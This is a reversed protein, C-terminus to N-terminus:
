SGTPLKDSIRKFLYSAEKQKELLSLFLEKNRRELAKDIQFSLIFHDLMLDIVPLVRDSNIAEELEATRVYDKIQGNVCILVFWGIGIIYKGQNSVTLVDGYYLTKSNSVM